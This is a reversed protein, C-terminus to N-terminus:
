IPDIVIIKVYDNNFPKDFQWGTDFRTFGGSTTITHVHDVTGLDTYDNNYYSSNEPHINLKDEIFETVELDKQNKDWSAGVDFKSGMDFTERQYYQPTPDDPLIGPKHDATDFDIIQDHVEDICLDETVISDELPNMINIIKETFVLRARYPKFFESVQKLYNLSFDDFDLMLSGINFTPLDLNNMVWQSLDSLLLRVIEEEKGVAFYSDIEYKFNPYLELLLDEAQKIELFNLSINRSFLDLFQNYLTKRELRTSPRKMISNYEDTIIEVDTNTGDYCIFNGVHSGAPHFSRSFSYVVGLYLELFSVTYAISTDIIRPNTGDAKWKIYDDQAKRVVISMSLYINDALFTPRIGYYPSKSPFRILSNNFQTRIQDETLMWHPDLNVVNFDIDSIVRTPIGPTAFVREGRFVLNGYPPTEDVKGDFQLWYEILELSPVGFYSLAKFLSYPTGKVKYLNVLDYFFLIKSYSNMNRLAEYADFGFSKILENLHASPMSYVDSVTKQTTVMTRHSAYWDILFDRFKLYDSTTFTEQDLTAEFFQQVRAQESLALATTKADLDSADGDKLYAFIKFYDDITFM